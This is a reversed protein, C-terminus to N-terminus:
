FWRCLKWLLLLSKACRFCRLDWASKFCTDDVPSYVLPLVITPRHWLRFVASRVSTVKLVLLFLTQKLNVKRNM